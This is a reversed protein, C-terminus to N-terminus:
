FYNYVEGLEDDSIIPATNIMEDIPLYEELSPPELLFYNPLHYITQYCNWLLYSNFFLKYAEVGYCVLRFQEPQRFLKFLNYHFAFIHEICQCISATEELPLM